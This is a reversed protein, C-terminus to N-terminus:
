LNCYPKLTYSQRKKKHKFHGSLTKRYRATNLKFYCDRVKHSLYIAEKNGDAEKRYSNKWSQICRKFKLRQM